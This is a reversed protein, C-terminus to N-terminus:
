GGRPSFPTRVHFFSIALEIPVLAESLRPGLKGLTTLVEAPRTGMLVRRFGARFTPLHEAEGATTAGVVVFPSLIGGIKFQARATPM